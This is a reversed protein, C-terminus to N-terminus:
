MRSHTCRKVVKNRINVYVQKFILYVRVGKCVCNFDLDRNFVTKKGKKYRKMTTM